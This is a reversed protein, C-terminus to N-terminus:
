FKKSYFNINKELKEVHKQTQVYPIAKLTKGDNSFKKDSLWSSVVGEGANYACFAVIKDNFKDFLYKLYYTGLMINVEPETLMNDEFNEIELKGALWMATSPLIQMLGVAGKNSVSYKDFSSEVNIMSAIIYPEVEFRHGYMVIEDEYILPFQIKYFLNVGFFITLSFMIFGLFLFSIRKLM